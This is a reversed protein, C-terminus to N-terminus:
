GVLYLLEGLIVIPDRGLFLYGTIKAGPWLGTKQKFVSLNKFSKILNANGFSGM